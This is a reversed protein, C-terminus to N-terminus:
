HSNWFVTSHTGKHKLPKAFLFALTSMTFERITQHYYTRRCIGTGHSNTFYATQSHRGLWRKTLSDENMSITRINELIKYNWFTTLLWLCIKFHKGNWNIEVYIIDWICHYKSLWLITTGLSYYKMYGGTVVETWLM